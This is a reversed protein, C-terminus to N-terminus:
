SERMGCEPELVDLSVPQLFHGPEGLRPDFTHICLRVRGGSLLRHLEEETPEWETTVCGRVDISVTLPLYEPQDKAFTMRREGEYEMPEVPTM